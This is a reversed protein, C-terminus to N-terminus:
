LFEAPDRDEFLDQFEDYSMGRFDYGVDRLNELIREDQESQQKRAM